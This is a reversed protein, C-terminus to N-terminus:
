HVKVIKAPGLGLPRSAHWRGYLILVGGVAWGVLETAIPVWQEETVLGPFYKEVGVRVLRAVVAVILGHVVTSSFPSKPEVLVNDGARIPTGPPIVDALPVTTANTPEQTM